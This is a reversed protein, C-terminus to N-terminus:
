RGAYYWEGDFSDDVIEKDGCSTCIFHSLAHRIRGTYVGNIYEKETFWVPEMQEGCRGCIPCDKASLYRM